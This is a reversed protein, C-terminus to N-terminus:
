IVASSRSPKYDTKEETSTVLLTTLFTDALSAFTPITMLLIVPAACWAFPEITLSPIQTDAIFALLSQPLLM